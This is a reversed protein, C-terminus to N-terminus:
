CCIFFCEFIIFKKCFVLYLFLVFLNLKVIFLSIGVGLWYKLDYIGWGKFEVFVWLLVYRGLNSFIGNVIGNIGGIVIDICNKRWVRFFFFDEEKM